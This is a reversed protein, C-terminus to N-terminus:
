LGFVTKLALWLSKKKADDLQPLDDARLVTFGQAQVAEYSKIGEAQSGFIIVKAPNYAQLSTFSLVPMAIVQVMALNLKVSALIKSLLAKDDASYNDWPKSVVVAVRPTIHYLTEQYLHPLM